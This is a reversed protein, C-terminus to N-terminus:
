QALSRGTASPVPVCLYNGPGFGAPRRLRYGRRALWAALPRHHAPTTTVLIAPRCAALMREADQLIAPSARRAALRLVTVAPRNREEWILDLAHAGIPATPVVDVNTLGDRAVNATLREVNASVSEFALVRGAPGVAKALPLAHLGIGAGVDIATTGPPARRCLARTEAAEYAGFALYAVGAPERHQLRIRVGGPLTATFEAPPFPLVPLVMRRILFRKGPAFPIRALYFRVPRLLPWCFRFLVLRLYASVPDFDDEESSGGRPCLPLSPERTTM